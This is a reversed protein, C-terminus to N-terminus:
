LGLGGSMWLKMDLPDRGLKVELLHFACIMIGVTMFCVYAYTIRSVITKCKPPVM